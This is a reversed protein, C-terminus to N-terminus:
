ARVVCWVAHVYAVRESLRTSDRLQFTNALSPVTKLADWDLTIIEAARIGFTCASLKTSLRNRWSRTFGSAADDGTVALDTPPLDSCLCVAHAATDRCQRLDFVDVPPSSLAPDCVRADVYLLHSFSGGTDSPQFLHM